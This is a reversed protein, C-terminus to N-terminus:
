AINVPDSKGIALRQNLSPPAISRHSRCRVMRPRLVALAARTRKPPRRRVEPATAEPLKVKIPKFPSAPDAALIRSAVGDLLAEGPPAGEQATVVLAFPGARRAGEPALEPHTLIVCLPADQCRPPAPGQSPGYAIEVRDRPVAISQRSWGEPLEGPQPATAASFLREHGPAIAWGGGSAGALVLLLQAALALTM